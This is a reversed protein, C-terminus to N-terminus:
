LLIHLRLSFTVIRSDILICTSVIDNITTDERVTVLYLSNAADSQDLFEPPNDNYDLITINASVTSSM